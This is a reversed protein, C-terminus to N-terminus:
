KPEFCSGHRQRFVRPQQAHANAFIGRADLRVQRELAGYPGPNSRYHYSWAYGNAVMWSGVDEGDKEVKALDRGYGDVEQTLVTVAHGQVHNELAARSVLGDTQCIEPADIGLIRVSRPKGGTQPRIYLTDGDVVHTVVGQWFEQEQAQVVLSACALLGLFLVESRWFFRLVAPGCNAALMALGNRM